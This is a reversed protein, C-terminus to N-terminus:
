YLRRIQTGVYYHSLIQEYNSGQKAMGAAGWQCMGVGHGLGRGSFTAKGAAIRFTFQTSKLKNYGLKARFDDGSMTVTKKGYRLRVTKVRRSTDRVPIDILFSKWYAKPVDLAKALAQRSLGFTWSYSPSDKCYLCMQPASYPYPENWVEESSATQGGCTSHYFAKVLRNNYVMVEGRTDDVAKRAEDDEASYGGYMQDIATSALDCVEQPHNIKKYVAYSRAAVAQAKKAELPWSPISEKNILGYLYGELNVENVLALKRPNEPERVILMDERFVRGKVDIWNQTARIRLQQASIPKGDVLFGNEDSTSVSHEHVGEVQYKLEGLDDDFFHLSVGKVTLSPQDRSICITLRDYRVPEQAVAPLSFGFFILVFLFVIAFTETSRLRIPHRPNGM